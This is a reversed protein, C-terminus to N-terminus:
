LIDELCKIVGEIQDCKYLDDSNNRLKSRSGSVRKIIGVVFWEDELENIIITDYLDVTLRFCIKNGMLFIEYRSISKKHVLSDLYDKISNQSRPTLNISKKDILDSYQYPDITKYYESNSENFKRLFKM